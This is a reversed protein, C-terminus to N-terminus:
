VVSKRDLVDEVKANKMEEISKTRFPGGSATLYIRHIKNEANGQLSQFIASHESDVPLIPVNCEKALPMILHGATVLTEKNALAIKKGAKIAAITPRIGLMGVIGTVLLESDPDEAVAILGEMGSYVKTKTDRIRSRLDLADKEDSVSVFAPQFERIQEELLKINRGCSLSTVKFEPHERVVDLTQTGISGTSGLISINM